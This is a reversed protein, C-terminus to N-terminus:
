DVWKESRGCTGCYGNEAIIGTCRSHKCAVRALYPNEKAIDQGEPIFKCRCHKCIRAEKRVFEACDPCIFHTKPDPENNNAIKLSPMAAVMLSFPGLLIGLLFWGCGSRGKSSAIVSAVLGFLIWIGIYEM